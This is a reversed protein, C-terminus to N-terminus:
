QKAKCNKAFGPSASLEANTTNSVLIRCLQKVDAKQNLKIDFPDLWKNSGDKAKVMVSGNNKIDLIVIPLAPLLNADITGIFRGNDDQLGIPDTNFQIIKIEDQSSVPSIQLVFLLLFVVFRIEKNIKPARTM